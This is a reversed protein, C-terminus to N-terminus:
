RRRSRRKIAWHLWLGSPLLWIGQGVIVTTNGSALGLALAVGFNVLLVATIISAAILHKM